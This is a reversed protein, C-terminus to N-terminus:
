VNHVQEPTTDHRGGSDNSGVRKQARALLM